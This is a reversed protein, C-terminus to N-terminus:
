PRWGCKVCMESDAFEHDCRGYDHGGAPPLEKPRHEIKYYLQCEISCFAPGSFHDQVWIYQPGRPAGNEHHVRRGPCSPSACQVKKM